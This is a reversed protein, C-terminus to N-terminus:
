SRAQSTRRLVVRKGWAQLVIAEPVRLVQLLGAYAALYALGALVIGARGFVDTWVSNAILLAAVAAALATRAISRWPILEAVTVGYAQRTRWGLWTVDVYSAIVFALMAGPLGALPILLLMAVSCTVFGAVNSEVLPRTRNVARLAPAFDFCERIVVLMYLQMVLAASVYNSGFVLTVLPVAYRAVLVVIPLLMIANVVTAKQWLALATGGASCGRDKRVMEPLIVASISNRVTTVVPEGFRGIAYQALAAAGLLRAVIVNSVNRNLMALLSATGSPVCFRLQDRWPERLVPEHRSRDFVLLAVGAAVLRAAELAVLSWIIAHFDHTVVAVIVVVIVRLTLRGASYFFVPKAHGRALWFYEWFDLNVSFLTYAALPVLYGHVVQGGSASDLAALVLVVLLSSCLTLLATQRALRWPSDPNAPVCYLLSDNISFQAFSQLIAGYLLFERYRGFDVVTLLRVLFIPSILMLGFSALRSLTLIATRNGLASM